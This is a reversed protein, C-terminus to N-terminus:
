AYDDELDSPNCPTFVWSVRRGYKGLMPEWNESDETKYVILGNNCYKPNFSEIWNNVHESPAQSLYGCGSVSIDQQNTMVDTPEGEDDEVFGIAPLNAGFGKAPVYGTPKVVIDIAVTRRQSTVTGVSQLIPGLPRGIVGIEAIKDAANTDNITINEFISNPISLFPKDNFTFSYNITGNAPSYSISEDTPRPNMIRFSDGSAFYNMRRYIITDNPFDSDDYDQFVSKIKDLHEKATDLKSRAVRYVGSCESSLGSDTQMGFIAEGTAAAWGPEDLNEDSEAYHTDQFGQITGRITATTIAANTGKQIEVSWVDQAASDYTKYHDGDGSPRVLWTETVSFRGASEDTEVTRSHNYEKVEDFGLICESKVIDSNFGLKTVVFERANDTASKKKCGSKDFTPNGAASVSHTVTWVPYNIERMHADTIGTSHIVIDYFSDETSPTIQWTETQDTVNTGVGSGCVGSGEFELEVSYNCIDHWNGQEFTITNVRVGSADWITNGDCEVFFHQAGTECEPMPSFIGEKQLEQNTVGTCSLGELLLDQLHDIETLGRVAASSNVGRGAVLTGNLTVRFTSGTIEKDSGRTFEKVVNMQPVPDFFYSGYSM